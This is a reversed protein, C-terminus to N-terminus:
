NPLCNLTALNARRAAPKMGPGPVSPTTSRRGSRPLSLMHPCDETPPDPRGLSRSVGLLEGEERAAGTNM